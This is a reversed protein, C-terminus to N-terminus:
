QSNKQKEQTQKVIAAYRLLEKRSTVGLKVYINKNHWKLGNITIGMIAMIEKSTKGEVYLNFVEQERATLKTLQETFLQYSDSDLSRHAEDAIRDLERKTHECENQLLTYKEHLAASQENQEREKQAFFKLLDDIEDIGSEEVTYQAEKLQRIGERVPKLYRRVFFLSFGMAAALFCTILLVIRTTDGVLIRQYDDGSILVSITSVDDGPCLHVEKALGIYETDTGTWKKLGSGFDSADYIGTPRRYAM